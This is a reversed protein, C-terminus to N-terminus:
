PTCVGGHHDCVDCGFGFCVCVDLYGGGPCGDGALSSDVGGGCHAGNWIEEFLFVQVHSISIANVLGHDLNCADPVAFAFDSEMKHDGRFRDALGLSFWLLSITLNRPSGNTLFVRGSAKHWFIHSDSIMCKRSILEPRGLYPKTSPIGEIRM